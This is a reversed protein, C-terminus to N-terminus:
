KHYYASQFGDAALPLGPAWLVSEAMIRDMENLGPAIPSDETESGGEDHVHLVVPLEEEEFKLLKEALVDRAMGQVINEFVKGGHSTVITWQKTKQDQAAYCLTDKYVDAGTNRDKWPMKTSEISADVYHLFRGSPLQIKLITRFNGGCDFVFKSIKICGNPGVERTVREGGLVDAIAEELTFWMAVIERYANRFIKVVEEAQELSMIVGMAEAYEQLTSAGMRYICGLVGPKAIQRHHKAKAKVAPDKSKKDAMLVEYPIQTMQSAFYMYPDFDKISRFGELLSQCGAVWAGVRTEIANLDSVNFRRGPRTVFTTRINSKVTLLVSGFVRKIEEYDMEYIMDRARDINEEDEFIETPRAMNHFQLGTGSWRGCRSSGMYIFQGRLRDDPCVQRLLTSVKKYTTSSTQKRLELVERCLPTLNTNNKLQSKVIDKELSYKPYDEHGEEIEPDMGDYGQLRAWALMQTNSNSNELGTKVNNIAIMEKKERNALEYAKTAFERDIPIGRDNVTQDFEWIRRELPPLPWVGLIRERRMVERQAM